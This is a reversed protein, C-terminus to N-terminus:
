RRPERYAAVYAAVGVTPDFRAAVLDNHRRRNGEGGRSIAAMAAVLADHLGQPDPASWWMDPSLGTLDQNGPVDTLVVPLGTALAEVTAIGLGEYLSPMVFLDAAHLTTRPDVTGLFRCREALGLEEARVQETAAVDQKGAHLWVWDAELGMALAELLAMHNKAPRCNGVTAIAVNEELLGLLERASSRELATPTRFRDRAIWNDIVSPDSNFRTRENEAVTPSVAISTVGLWRALRRHAQRRRALAGEFPFANHITRVVDAGACRAAIALYTSARELHLHVVDIERSRALRALRWFFLPSRSSPLHHVVYGADRLRPAFSGERRGTSVVECEVGHMPWLSGASELMTEAGSPRVEALVHMVRM